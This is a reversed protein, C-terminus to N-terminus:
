VEEPEFLRGQAMEQELRRAALECYEESIEIGVGSRGRRYCAVLTTGSGLFPDLVTGCDMGGCIREVMAIPVQCPHETKEHNVNKVQEYQWWDYGVASPEGGVVGDRSPRHPEPIGTHIDLRARRRACVLVVRAVGQALPQRRYTSPVGM